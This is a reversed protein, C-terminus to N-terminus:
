MERVIPELLHGCALTNDQIALTEPRPGLLSRQEQFARVLLEFRPSQLAPVDLNVFSGQSYHVGLPATRRSLGPKPGIVRGCCLGEDEVEIERASLGTEFAKKRWVPLAVDLCIAVTNVRREESAAGPHFPKAAPRVGPSGPDLGHVQA